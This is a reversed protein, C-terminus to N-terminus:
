DKPAAKKNVATKKKVITKKRVATKKKAATKKKTTAKVGETEIKEIQAEIKKIKQVIALVQDDGDLSAGTNVIEYVKAGLEAIQKHAKHKHEYVKYKKKSEETIEETKAKLYELSGKYGKQMDSKVKGWFDKAM